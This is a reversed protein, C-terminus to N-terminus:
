LGGTKLAGAILPRGYKWAAYGVAPLANNWAWSAGDKISNGVKELISGKGEEVDRHKSLTNPDNPPDIAMNALMTGQTYHALFQSRVSVEYSNGVTGGSVAAVFPEFLIAIPTYSPDHLQTSFAGSVGAPVAPDQNWGLAATWPMQNHDTVADWDRFWTAKSQDVVSCNKQHTDCLEEGGYTRTRTHSRIGQQLACLEDNRTTGALLGVGTTMRLIRVIGGVGVHQTWNRMRLSCRTPIANDPQDSTLQPSQYITTKIPTADLNGDCEFATAQVNGTSPFVILLIAGAELNSTALSDPKKTILGNNCVTTGVIPTAPGISMHTAVSFPDHAFADYYGFGRPAIVNSSAPTQDWNGKTMDPMIGRAINQPGPMRNLNAVNMRRQKQGGKNGKGTGKNTLEYMKRLMPKASPPVLALQIQQRSTLTMNSPFRASVSLAPGQLSSIRISTSVVNREPLAQTM